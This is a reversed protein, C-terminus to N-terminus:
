AKVAVFLQIGRGIGHESEDVGPFEFRGLPSGVLHQLAEWGYMVAELTEAPEVLGCALMALRGFAVSLDEREGAVLRVEVVRVEDIPPAHIVQPLEPLVQRPGPIRGHRRIEM